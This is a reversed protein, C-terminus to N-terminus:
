QVRRQGVAPTGRTGCPWCVSRRLYQRSPPVRGASKIKMFVLTELHKMAACQKDWPENYERSLCYEGHDDGAAVALIQLQEITLMLDGGYTLKPTCRHEGYAGQRRVGTGASSMYDFSRRM